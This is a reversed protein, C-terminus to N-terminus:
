RDHGTLYEDLGFYDVTSHVMEHPDIADFDTIEETWENPLPDDNRVYDIMAVLIAKSEDDWLEETVADILLPRIDDNLTFYTM